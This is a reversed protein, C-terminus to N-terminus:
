SNKQSKKKERAALKEAKKKVAEARTTIKYTYEQEAEALDYDEKHLTLKISAYAEYNKTDNVVDGVKFTLTQLDKTRIVEKGATTLLQILENVANQALEQRITLETKNAM